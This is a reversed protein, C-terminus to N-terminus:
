EPQMRVGQAGNLSRTLHFNALPDDAHAGVSAAFAPMAGADGAELKAFAEAYLAAAPGAADVSPEYARSPESRG